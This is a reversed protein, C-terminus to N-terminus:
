AGKSKAARIMDPSDDGLLEGLVAIVTEKIADEICQTMYEQDFFGDNAAIRTWCKEAIARAKSDSM